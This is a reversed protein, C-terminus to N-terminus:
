DLLEEKRTGGLVRVLGMVGVVYVPIQGPQSERCGTEEAGRGRPLPLTRGRRAPPPHHHPRGRLHRWDPQRCVCPQGLSFPRVGTPWAIGSLQRNSGPFLYQCEFKVQKM